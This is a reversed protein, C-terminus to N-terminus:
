HQSDRIAEFRKKYVFLMRKKALTLNSSWPSNKDFESEQFAKFGESDQDAERKISASANFSYHPITYLTRGKLDRKKLFEEVERGIAIIPACSKGVIEIEQLLLPYWERYRRERDLDAVKVLMAGKSMDTLHYTEGPQCLFREISRTFRAPAGNRFGKAIKNEADEINDAWPGFSPEMGVFIYDARSRPEEFPLYVGGGQGGGDKEVQNRFLRELNRYATTDIAM